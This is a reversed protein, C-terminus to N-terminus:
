EITNDITEANKVTTVIGSLLSIMFILLACLSIVFMIMGFYFTVPNDLLGYHLGLLVSASIGTFLAIEYSYRLSYNNSYKEYIFSMICAIACAILVYYLFTSVQGSYDFLTMKAVPYPYRPDPMVAPVPHMLTKELWVQLLKPFMSAIVLAWTSVRLWSRSAALAVFIFVISLLVTGFTTIIREQLEGDIFMFFLMSFMGGIAVTLYSLAVAIRKHNVKNLVHNDNM